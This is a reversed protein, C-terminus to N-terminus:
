EKILMKRLIELLEVFVLHNKEDAADQEDWTRFIPKLISILSDEMLSRYVGAGKVFEDPNQSEMYGVTNMIQLSATQFRTRILEELKETYNM